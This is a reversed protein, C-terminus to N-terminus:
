GLYSLLVAEAQSTGLPAKALENETDNCVIHLLKGQGVARAGFLKSPRKLM